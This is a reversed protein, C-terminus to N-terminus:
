PDLNFVFAKQVSGLYLQCGLHSSERISDSSKPCLPRVRATVARSSADLHACCGRGGVVVVSPDRWVAVVVISSSRSMERLDWGGEGQREPYGKLRLREEHGCIAKPHSETEGEPAWTPRSLAYNHM